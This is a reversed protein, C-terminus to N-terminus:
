VSKASRSFLVSATKAITAASHLRQSALSMSPCGPPRTFPSERTMIYIETPLFLFLEFCWSTVFTRLFDSAIRHIVTLLNAPPEGQGVSVTTVKGPSYERRKDGDNQEAAAPCTPMSQRGIFCWQCLGIKLVHARGRICVGLGVMARVSIMISKATLQLRSAWRDM